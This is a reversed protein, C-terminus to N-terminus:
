WSVDTYEQHGIVLNRFFSCPVVHGVSLAVCTGLYVARLREERAAGSPPSEVPVCRKHGWPWLLRGRLDALRKSRLSYFAREAGPAAPEWSLEGAPSVPCGQFPGRRWACPVESMKGVLVRSGLLCPRCHQATDVCLGSATCTHSSRASALHGGDAPLVDERRARLAEGM